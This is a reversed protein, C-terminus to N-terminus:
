YTTVQFMKQLLYGIYKVTSLRNQKESYEVTYIGDENSWIRNFYEDVNNTIESDNSAIVRLNEEPNYNDMNRSTYNGSGGIIESEDSYRVYLLKTHFQEKNTDYWRINLYDTNLEQLEGAVPLNPLGMKENGFANQNPDLVIRVEAERDAAAELADVIERDALYFMGVWVEDGKEARNIADVVSAEIKSETVVQAQVGSDEGESPEVLEDVEEETPFAGMDGGSFEAIAKEATIMDKLIEGKVKFGINSHFGSMDHPNASIIMGENETIAVKRHNAKVNFLKLFSRLTIQPADKVMPNSIWGNGKQGFWQFASRWLGSYYINPDRLRNLDTFIVEAGAERLPALQEAEHSGYTTNIVDSIFVVKLDPHEEMQELIKNSVTSSIEPYDRSGDTYSNIMFMDLILFEEAEEITRYLTDFISQDYVEEGDKEYTLDYLFEIDDEAIQHVDGAYSMGEPIPKLRHFLMMTILILALGIIFLWKKRQFWKRYIQM